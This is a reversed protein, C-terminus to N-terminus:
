WGNSRASAGKVGNGTGEILIDEVAPLVADLHLIKGGPITHIAPGYAFDNM